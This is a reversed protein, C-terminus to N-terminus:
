FGMEAFSALSVTLLEDVAALVDAPRIRCLAPHPRGPPADDDGPEYRWLARHRHGRPPGWRAPPQPGFLVVSPTRYATALHAVGTDGCVVLRSREVLDALGVLDIGHIVSGVGALGAVKEALPREGPGATVLVRRGRAALRGAVIAFREAPWRRAVQAAGPHVLVPGDMPGNDQDEDREGGGLCLDAPDARCGYSEVLRCWRRVEHDREQWAPAGPVEYSWLERPRLACLVGTSQPGRGHLNVALRPPSDLPPLVRPPEPVAPPVVTVRDVAGIRAVLPVLHGPTALVLEEQPFRRRLARLAPVSTLLDGLGLARLVVIV